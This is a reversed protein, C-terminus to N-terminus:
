ILILPHIQGTIMPITSSALFDIVVNHTNSTTNFDRYNEILKTSDVDRYKEYLDLLESRTYLNDNTMVLVM